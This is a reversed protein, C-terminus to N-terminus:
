KKKIFTIATKLGGVFMKNPEVTFGLDPFYPNKGKKITFQYNGEIEMPVLGTQQKYFAAVKPAPDSTSFVWYYSEGQSLGASMQGDYTAGPYTPAGLQVETPQPLPAPRDSSSAQGFPALSLMVLAAFLAVLSLRACSTSARVTM